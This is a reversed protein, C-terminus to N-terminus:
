DYFNYPGDIKLLVLTIYLMDLVITDIITDISFRYYNIGRYKVNRCIKEVCILDNELHLLVNAMYRNTQNLTM